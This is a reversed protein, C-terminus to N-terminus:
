VNVIPPKCYGGRGGGRGIDLPKGDAGFLSFILPKSALKIPADTGPECMNFMFM